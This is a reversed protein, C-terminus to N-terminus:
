GWDVHMYAHRCPSVVLRGECQDPELKDLVLVIIGRGTGEIVVRSHLGDSVSGGPTNKDKLAAAVVWCGSVRSWALPILYNFGQLSSPVDGEEVEGVLAEPAAGLFVGISDPEAGLPPELRDDAM